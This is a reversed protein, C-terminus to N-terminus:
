PRHNYDSITDYHPSTAGAPAPPQSLRIKETSEVQVVQGNHIVIQVLGYRVSKVQRNVLALWDTAGANRVGTKQDTSVTASTM